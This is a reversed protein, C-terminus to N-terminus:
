FTEPTLITSYSTIFLYGSTKADNSSAQPEPEASTHRPLALEPIIATKYFCFLKPILIYLELVIGTGIKWM